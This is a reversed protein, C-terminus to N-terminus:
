GEEIAHSEGDPCSRWVAKETAQDKVVHEANHRHALKEAIQRANDLGRLDRVVEANTKPLVIRYLPRADREGNRMGLALLYTTM